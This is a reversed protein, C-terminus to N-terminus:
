GTNSDDEVIRHGLRYYSFDGGLTWAFLDAGAMDITKEDKLLHDDVYSGVVRGIVGHNLETDVIETIECEMNLPCERIMPATKLQGFFNEFLTSKDLDNGSTSGCIRVQELLAVSPVNVSFTRHALIGRATYREKYISFFIQKGFDFPAAYGIVLYNPREDVLAGVLIVPLPSLVNGEYSAKAM